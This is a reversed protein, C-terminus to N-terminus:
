SRRFQWDALYRCGQKTRTSRERGPHLAIRQTRCGTSRHLYDRVKTEGSLLPKTEIPGGEFDYGIPAHPTGAADTLATRVNASDSVAVWLRKPSKPLNTVQCQFVILKFGPKPAFIRKTVDFTSLDKYEYPEADTKMAYSEPTQVSMVQLRWQGSSIVDGIKGELGKATASTAGFVLVVALACSFVKFSKVQASFSKM